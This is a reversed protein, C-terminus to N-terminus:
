ITVLNLKKFCRFEQKETDFYVQITSNKARNDGKIKDEVDQLTGWAERTTGDVKQFYFKVIGILMAKQLKYNAWAKKLCESFELGTQKFFQWATKMIESLAQKKNTVQIM